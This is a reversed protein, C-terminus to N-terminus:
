RTQNVGPSQPRPNQPAQTQARLPAASAAPNQQTNQVAVSLNINPDPAMIHSQDLMSVHAQILSRMNVEFQMRLRKLDAIEQYVRKLQDRGDKIILEAKQQADQVILKGEREADTRIQDAMKTATALTAKLVDDRERYEMMQLEKQRLGDKLTNRERVLEEMQDALDRLFGAVEDTDFGMVKRGFTKHAIDIPAIRM